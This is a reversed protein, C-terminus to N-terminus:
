PTAFPGRLEILIQKLGAFNQISHNISTDLDVLGREKLQMIAAATFQKTVSGVHFATDLRNAAADTANGYARAHITKDGRMVLALGAFREAEMMKILLAESSPHIVENRAAIASTETPTETVLQEPSCAALLTACGLILAVWFGDKSFHSKRCNTKTIMQEFWMTCSISVAIDHRKMQTNSFNFGWGSYQAGLSAPCSKDFKVFPSRVDPICATARPTCQCRITWDRFTRPRAQM